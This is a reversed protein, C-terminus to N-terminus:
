CRLKHVRSVGYMGGGWGVYEFPLTREPRDPKFAWPDPYLEPNLHIDAFPYVVYAGSPIRTGNLYTEPGMNRRMATHPQALRLVERIIKDMVPTHNEWAELPITAIRETITSHCDASSYEALLTHVEEEAKRKWEPHGAILTVM